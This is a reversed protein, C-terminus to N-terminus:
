PGRSRSASSSAAPSHHPRHHLKDELGLRELLATARESRKSPPLGAYLAPVEVNERV